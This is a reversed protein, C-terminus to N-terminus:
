FLFFSILKWLYKHDFQVKTILKTAKTRHLKVKGLDSGQGNEELFSSLHDIASISFHCATLVALKLEVKKVSDDAKPKKAPPIKLQQSM